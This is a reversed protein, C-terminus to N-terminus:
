TPPQLSSWRYLEGRAGADGCISCTGEVFRDALFSCHKECYPQVTTKEELYGNKQLKLFIDQAIETQEPTSTRGFKDFKINFWEYTNAHLQYYKDCLERPSVGEDIAKTETATGYEDATARLDTSIQWLLIFRVSM